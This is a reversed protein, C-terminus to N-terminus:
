QTVEPKPTNAAAWDEDSQKEPVEAIYKQTQEVEAKEVPKGYAYSTLLRFAEFALRQDDANLFREWAFQERTIDGDVKCQLLQEALNKADKVNALRFQTRKAKADAGGTEDRL